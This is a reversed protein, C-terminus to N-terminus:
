IKWASAARAIEKCLSAILSRTESDCEDIQRLLNKFRSMEAVLIELGESSETPMQRIWGSRFLAEVLIVVVLIHKIKAPNDPIETDIYDALDNACQIEDLGLDLSLTECARHALQSVQIYRGQRLSSSIM